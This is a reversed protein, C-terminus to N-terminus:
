GLFHRHTLGIERDEARFTQSGARRSPGSSPVKSVALNIKHLEPGRTDGQDEPELGGLPPQARTMGEPTYRSKEVELAGNVIGPCIKRWSLTAEELVVPKSPDELAKVYIVPSEQLFFKQVSFFFLFPLLSSNLEKTWYSCMGM